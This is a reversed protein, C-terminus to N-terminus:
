EKAKIEIFSLPTTYKQTLGILSCANERNYWHLDHIRLPWGNLLDIALKHYM